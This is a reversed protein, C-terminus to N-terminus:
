GVMRMRMWWGRRMTMVVMMVMIREGGREGVGHDTIMITRRMDMRGVWHKREIRWVAVAGGPRSM